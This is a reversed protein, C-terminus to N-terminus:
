TRNYRKTQRKNRRCNKARTKRGRRGGKINEPSGFVGWKSNTNSNENSSNENSSNGNEPNTTKTSSAASLTPSAPAEAEQSLPRSSYRGPIPIPATKKNNVKKPLSVVPSLSIPTKAKLSNPIAGKLLNVQEEPSVNVAKKKGTGPPSPLKMINKNLSFPNLKKWFPTGSSM